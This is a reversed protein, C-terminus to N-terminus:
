AQSHFSAAHLQLSAERRQNSIGGPTPHDIGGLTPIIGRDDMQDQTIVDVRRNYTGGQQTSFQHYVSACVAPLDQVLTTLCNRRAKNMTSTTLQQLAGVGENRVGGNDITSQREQGNPKCQQM